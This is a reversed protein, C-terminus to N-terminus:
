KINYYRLIRQRMEEEHMPDTLFYNNNAEREQMITPPPAFFSMAFILISSFIGTEYNDQYNTNEKNQSNNIFLPNLNMFDTKQIANGFYFTQTNVNKNEFESTKDDAFLHSLIIFFIFWFITIKKM